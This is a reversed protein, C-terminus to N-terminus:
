WSHKYGATVSFSVFGGLDTESVGSTTGLSSFFTGANGVSNESSLFFSSSGDQASFMSRFYFLWNKVKLFDTARLSLMYYQQGLFELGLRDMKKINDALVLLQPLSDAKFASWLRNLDTKSYGLEHFVWESRIDIGNEFAYKAGLVSYTYIRDEDKKSQELVITGTSKTIPYWSLSGKVHSIDAFFSLGDLVDYSAYEGLWFGSKDRWGIVLGFYDVGGNWNFETKSLLKHSFSEGYEFEPDGNDSLEMMFVESLTEGQTLNFRALHRGKTEFLVDKASITEHFIKNSPSASEAPGWQYNQLGYTVFFSDSINIKANAESWSVKSSLHSQISHEGFHAESYLNIWRPRFNVTIQDQYFFRLQPRVEFTGLRDATKLISNKSNVKSSSLNRYNAAFYISLSPEYEISSEAVSVILTLTLFIFLFFSRM